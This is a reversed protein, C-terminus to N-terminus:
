MKAIFKSTNHICEQDPVNQFPIGGDLRQLCAEARAIAAPSATVVGHAMSAKALRHLDSAPFRDTDIEAYLSLFEQTSLQPKLKRLIRQRLRDNSSVHLKCSPEHWMAKQILALAENRATRTSPHNAPLLCSSDPNVIADLYSASIETLADGVVDACCTM